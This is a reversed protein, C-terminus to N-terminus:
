FPIGLQFSPLISLRTLLLFDLDEEFGASEKLFDIFMEKTLYRSTHTSIIPKQYDVWFSKRLLDIQWMRQGCNDFRTIEVPCHSPLVVFKSYRYQGRTDCISIVIHEKDKMNAKASFSCSNEIYKVIEIM